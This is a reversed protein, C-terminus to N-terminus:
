GPLGVASPLLVGVGSVAHIQKLVAMRDRQGRLRAASQTGERGVEPGLVPISAALGLGQTTAGSHLLSNLLTQRRPRGHKMQEKQEWCLGRWRAEGLIRFGVTDSRERCFWRRESVKKLRGVEFCCVTKAAAGKHIGKDQVTAM